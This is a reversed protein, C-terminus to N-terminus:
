DPLEECQYGALRVMEIIENAHERLSEIRLVKDIDEIDVSWNLVSASKDMLHSIAEIDAVSNLNTRFVFINISLKNSQQSQAFLSSYM